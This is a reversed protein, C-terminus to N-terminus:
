RALPVGRVWTLRLGRGRQGALSTAETTVAMARSHGM